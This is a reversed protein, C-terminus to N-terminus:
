KGGGGKSGCNNDCFERADKLNVETSKMLNSVLHVLGKANLKLQHNASFLKKNEAEAKALKQELQTIKEIYGLMKDNKRIVIDKWLADGSM